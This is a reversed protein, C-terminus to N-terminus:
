ARRRDVAYASCPNSKAEKKLEAGIQAIQAYSSLPHLSNHCIGIAISLLPFECRRGQRDKSVIGGRRLDEERYFSPAKADFRKIIEAAMDEMREPTTQLIFDDGGVHGLFEVGWSPDDALSGLLAATERIVRDGAEYGYADNYAKFFNLDAYLVALPRQEDLVARLRREIAVNGPLRTLPNADLGERTRRLVMKVRAVFESMDVPKMVFDDAGLDLGEIKDERTATASLLIVPLHRLTPNDRLRRCAEIGDMRPMVMDLIVLDPAAKPILALAEEGNYATSVRFGERVLAEKLFYLLDPDDDALVIRPPAATM